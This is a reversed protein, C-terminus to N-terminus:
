GQTRLIGALISLSKITVLCEPALTDKARKVAEQGTKEPMEYKSQNQLILTLNSLSRLMDLQNPGLVRERGEVVRRNM